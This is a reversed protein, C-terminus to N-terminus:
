INVQGLYRMYISDYRDKPDSKKRKVNNEINMWITARISIEKRKTASYYEMTHNCVNQKDMWGNVSLQVAEM